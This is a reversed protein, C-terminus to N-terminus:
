RRGTSLREKEPVDLTIVGDLFVARLELRGGLAAVYDHPTSLYLDEEHEVRSVNAQSTELVGAVETQTLQRSERIKGLTLADEIARGYQEMRERRMPDSLIRERLQRFNKAM